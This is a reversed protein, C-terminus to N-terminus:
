IRIYTSNVCSMSTCNYKRFLLKDRSLCLIAAEADKSAVVEGKGGVENARNVSHVIPICRSSM